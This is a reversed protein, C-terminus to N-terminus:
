PVFLKFTKPTIGSHFFYAWHIGKNDENLEVRYFDGAESFEIVLLNKVDKYLPEQSESKVRIELRAPPTKRFGSEINANVNQLSEDKQVLDYFQDYTAVPVDVKAEKQATKDWYVYVIKDFRYRDSQNTHPNIGNYNLESLDKGQLLTNQAVYQGTPGYFYLLAVILAVASVLSAGLLALLNRIDKKMLIINYDSEVKIFIAIM